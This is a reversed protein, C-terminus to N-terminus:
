EKFFQLTEELQDSANSLREMEQNISEIDGKMVSISAATEQTSAANEESIASLGTITDLVTEKHAQLEKTAETCANISEMAKGLKEQMSSFNTVVSHLTEQEATVSATIQEAYQCNENAAASIKDIIDTITVVHEASQSALKKIEEAVVAFGKGAEGARAAEISANLALLNTQGAIEEILETATQIDKLVEVINQVGHAINNANEASNKNDSILNHLAEQSEHTAKEVDESLQFSDKTDETVKNISEGMESMEHVISEISQAMDTAGHAIESVAENVGTVANDTAAIHEKVSETIEKCSIANENITQLTVKFKEIFDNMATTLKKVEDGFNAKNSAFHLNVHGEALLAINESTKKLPSLIRQSIIFTVAIALLLIFTCVAIIKNRLTNISHYVDSKDASIVLVYGNNDPVYYGALKRVGKFLYETVASEVSEGKEIREIVGKVVENEVPQGVKEETPHYIMTQDPSVLYAYSSDFGKVHADSLVNAIEEYNSLLNPDEALEKDLIVGYTSALDLMNNKTLETAYSKFNRFSCFLATFGVALIGIALILLFKFVISVKKNKTKQRM